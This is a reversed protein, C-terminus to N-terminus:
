APVVASPANEFGANSRYSELQPSTHSIRRRSANDNDDAAAAASYLTDEGAGVAKYASGDDELDPSKSHRGELQSDFSNTRLRDNSASRYPHRWTNQTAYGGDAREPAQHTDLLLKRNWDADSQGNGADASRVYPRYANRTAYGGPEAIYSHQYDQYMPFRNASAATRTQYGGDSHYPQFATQTAYGHDHSAKSHYDYEDAVYEDHLTVGAHNKGGFHHPQFATQTAYGGSADHSTYSHYHPVTKTHYGEGTASPADKGSSHHPQFVTRTAYGGTEHANLRHDRYLPVTRTHYGDPGIKSIAPKRSRTASPQFANRNEYGLPDAAFGPEYLDYNSQQYFPLLKSDLVSLSNAAHVDLCRFITVSTLLLRCLMHFTAEGIQLSSM